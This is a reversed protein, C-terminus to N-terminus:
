SCEFDIVASVAGYLGIAAHLADAVRDHVVAIDKDMSSQARWFKARLVNNVLIFIAKDETLVVKVRDGVCLEMTDIEGEDNSSRNDFMGRSNTILDGPLENLNYHVGREPVQRVFGLELGGSWTGVKDAITMEFWRVCAGDWSHIHGNLSTYPGARMDRGLPLETFCTACQWTDQGNIREASRLGDGIRTRPDAPAVLVAKGSLYQALHWALSDPLTPDDGLCNLYSAICDLKTPRLVLDTGVVQQISM